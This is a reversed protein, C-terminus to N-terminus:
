PSMKVVRVCNMGFVARAASAANVAFASIQSDNHEDILLLVRNSRIKQLGITGMLLRSIVSGEVYLGNEPLENIDSANVVNPHTILNDCAAALLRAVPGADGARGGIEAGIGTPVLLVANFQEVNEYARKAVNFITNKPPTPYNSIDSLIGLECHYGKDDTRTIAFRVPMENSPLKELVHDSFYKLGGNDKVCPISIEKEYLYM